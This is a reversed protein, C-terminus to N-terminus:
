QIASPQSLPNAVLRVLRNFYITPGAPSSGAVVGNHPNPDLTRIGKAKRDARQQCSKAQPRRRPPVARGLWRRRLKGLHGSCWQIRVTWSVVFFENWFRNGDTWLLGGSRCITTAIMTARRYM